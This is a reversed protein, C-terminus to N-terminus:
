AGYPPNELDDDIHMSPMVDRIDTVMANAEQVVRDIKQIVTRVEDLTHSVDDLAPGVRRLADRGRNTLAFFALVGGALAVLTATTVLRPDDDV